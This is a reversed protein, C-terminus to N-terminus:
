EPDILNKLVTAPNNLVYNRVTILVTLQSLAQSFDNLNDSFIEELDVNQILSSAIIWITIGMFELMLDVGKDFCIVLVVVNLDLEILRSLDILIM